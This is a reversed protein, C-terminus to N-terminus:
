QEQVAAGKSITYYDVGLSVTVPSETFITPSQRTRNVALQFVDMRQYGRVADHYQKGEICDDLNMDAYLIGETKQLCGVEEKEHTDENM